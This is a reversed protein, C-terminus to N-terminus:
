TPRLGLAERHREFPERSLNKTFADASLDHGHQWEISSENSQCWKQHMWYLSIGVTRRVHKVKTSVANRIAKICAMADMKLIERVGNEVKSYFGDYPLKPDAYGLLCDVLLKIRVAAKSGWVGGFLESEMSSLSVTTHKKVGWDLLVCTNPGMLYVAFGSVGKREERDSAHSSDTQTVTYIKGEIFDKTDVQGTLVYNKTDQLYGFFWTIREDDDVSWKAVNQQQTNLASSLDARSCREVFAIGGLHKLAVDAFIGAEPKYDATKRAHEEDQERTRPRVVDAPSAPTKRGRLKANPKLEALDEIFANVFKEVLDKQDWTIKYVGGYEHKKLCEVHHTVGVFKEGNLGPINEPQIFIQSTEEFYEDINNEDASIMIDDTYRLASDPFQSDSQRVYLSSDVDFLPQWGLGVLAREAFSDFDMSARFRGYLTKTVNVIPPDRDTYIKEWGKPWMQRPLVAGVPCKDGKPATHYAGTWDTTKASKGTGVSVAVFTRMSAPCPNKSHLHETEGIANTQQMDSSRLEKFVVIRAKPKVDGAESEVNKVGMILNLLCIVGDKNKKRWDWLTMHSDYDLSKHAVFVDNEKDLAPQMVDKFTEGKASYPFPEASFAQKKSVQEFKYVEEPESDGHELVLVGNSEWFARPDQGTACTTGCEACTVDGDTNLDRGSIKRWKACCSTLVWLARDIPDNEVWATDDDDGGWTVPVQNIDTPGSWFKKSAHTVTNQSYLYRIQAAENMYGVRLLDPSKYGALFGEFARGSFTVAVGDENKLGVERVVTVVCGFPGLKKELAKASNEGHVAAWAGSLLNDHEPAWKLAAPWLTAPSGSDVIAATTLQKIDRVCKEAAGNRWPSYRAVCTHIVPTGDVPPLTSIWADVDGLQDTDNGTYLERLPQKIEQGFEILINKTSESSKHTLPSAKKYGSKEDLGCYGYNEGRSGCPKIIGTTDFHWRDRTEQEPNDSHAHPARQQNSRCCDVCTRRFPFHGMTRHTLLDVDIESMLPFDKKIKAFTIKYIRKVNRKRRFRLAKRTRAASLIGENESDEENSDVEADAEAPPPAAVAAAVAGADVAADAPNDAHAVPIEVPEDAYVANTLSTNISVRPSSLSERMALLGVVNAVFSVGLRGKSGTTTTTTAPTVATGGFGVRFIRQKFKDCIWAPGTSEDGIETVLLINRNGDTQVDFIADFYMDDPPPLYGTSNCWYHTPMGSPCLATKRLAKLIPRATQVPLQDWEVYTGNENKLYNVLHSSSANVPKQALHELENDTILPFGRSNTDLTMSEGSKVHIQWGSGAQIKVPTKSYTVAIINDNAQVFDKGCLIDQANEVQVADVPGGPLNVSGTPHEQVGHITKVAETGKVNDLPRSGSVNTSACFDVLWTRNGAEGEGGDVVNVDVNSSFSTVLHAEHAHKYPCPKMPAKVSKLNRSCTGDGRKEHMCAKTACKSAYEDWDKASHSLVGKCECEGSNFHPTCLPVRGAAVHAAKCKVFYDKKATESLLAFKEKGIWEPMRNKTEGGKGGKPDGPTGGGASSDGGKGGKPDGKGKVTNVDNSGDLGPPPTKPPAKPPPTPKEVNNVDGSLASNRYFERALSLVKYYYGEFYERDMIQGPLPNMEVWNRLSTVIQPNECAKFGEEVIAYFPYFNDAANIYGQNEYLHFQSYYKVLWGVINAKSPRTVHGVPAFHAFSAVIDYYEKVQAPRMDVCTFFYLDILEVGRGWTQADAVALQQVHIPFVHLLEQSLQDYASIENRTMQSRFTHIDVRIIEKASGTLRTRHNVANDVYWRLLNFIRQGHLTRQRLYTQFKWDWGIFATNDKALTGSFQLKPLPNISSTVATGTLKQEKPDNSGVDFKSMVREFMDFLRDERSPANGGWQPPPGGWQPPQQQGYFHYQPPPPSAVPPDTQQNWWEGVTDSQTGASIGYWQPNQAPATPRVLGDNTVVGYHTNYGPPQHYQVPPPPLPQQYQVPPPPQGQYQVPQQQYQVPQQVPPPPLPTSQYRQQQVPQTVQPYYQYTPQQQYQVPQQQYQMQPHPDSAMPMQLDPVATIPSMVQRIVPNGIDDIPPNVTPEGSKGYYQHQLGPPGQSKGYGKPKGKPTFAGHRSRSRSSDEDFPDHATYMTHHSMIFVVFILATASVATTKAGRLRGHARDGGSASDAM